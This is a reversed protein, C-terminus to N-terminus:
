EQLPLPIIARARRMDVHAVYMVNQNDNILALSIHPRFIPNNYVTKYQPYEKTGFIIKKQFTFSLIVKKNQRIKGKICYLICTSETPQILVVYRASIYAWQDKEIM